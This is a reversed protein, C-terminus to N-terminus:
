KKYICDFLTNALESDLEKLIKYQELACERDNLVLCSLGLWYHAMAFDPDISICKKHCMIAEKHKSIMGFSYGLYSYAAAFDPNLKISMKYSPIAENYRGAAHYAGGLSFHAMYDDPFAHVWERGNEILEDEGAYTAVHATPALVFVFSIILVHLLYKKM